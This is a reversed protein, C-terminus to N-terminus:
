RLIFFSMLNNNEYDIQEVKSWQAGSHEVLTTMGVMAEGKGTKERM